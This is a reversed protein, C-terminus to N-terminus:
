LLESDSSDVSGLNSSSVSSTELMDWHSESDTTAPSESRISGSGVSALSRGDGDAFPDAGQQVPTEVTGLKPEAQLSTGLEGRIDESLGPISSHIRQELLARTGPLLSGGSGSSADDSASEWTDDSDSDTMEYDTTPPPTPSAILRGSRGPMGALWIGGLIKDEDDSEERRSKRKGEHPLAEDGDPKRKHDARAVDDLWSSLSDQPFSKQDAIWETNGWPGPVFSSGRMGSPTPITEKEKGKGKASRPSALNEDTQIKLHKVTEMSATRKLSKKERVEEWRVLAERERVHRDLMEDWLSKSHTPRVNRMVWDTDLMALHMTDKYAGDSPDITSRRRLGENVFGIQTFLRRVHDNKSPDLVVAQVRHLGLSDFCWSLVQELARRAYGKGRHQRGIVIGINVEGAPVNDPPTVTVYVYGVTTQTEMMMRTTASPDPSRRSEPDFTDDGNRPYTARGFASAVVSPPYPLPRTTWEYEELNVHPSGAPEMFGSNFTAGGERHVQESPWRPADWSEYYEDLATASSHDGSGPPTAQEKWPYTSPGQTYSVDELPDLLGRRWSESAESTAMQQKPPEPKGTRKGLVEAFYFCHEAFSPLIPVPSQAAEVSHNRLDEWYEQVDQDFLTAPDADPALVIELDTPQLESGKEFFAPMVSAHFLTRHESWGTATPRIVLLNRQPSDVATFQPVVLRAM